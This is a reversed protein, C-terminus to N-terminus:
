PVTPPMGELSIRAEPVWPQVPHRRSFTQSHTPVLFLDPDRLTREAQISSLLKKGPRVEGGPHTGLHRVQM